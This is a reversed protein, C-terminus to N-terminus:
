GRERRRIASVIYGPLIRGCDCFLELSYKACKATYDGGDGDITFEISKLPIYMGKGKYKIYAEKFRMAKKGRYGMALLTFGDKTMLYIPDSRVGGNPMAITESTREFNLRSFEESCGLTQIDRLVNRHEKGFTEAVQRSSCFSQGKREYLGYNPNLMLSM